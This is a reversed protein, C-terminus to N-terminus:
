RPVSRTMAITGQAGTRDALRMKPPRVAECWQNKWVMRIQWAGDEWTSAPQAVRQAGQRGEGAGAGWARAPESVRQAGQRGEGQM